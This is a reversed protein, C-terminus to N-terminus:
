QVDILDQKKKHYEQNLVDMADILGEYQYHGTLLLLAIKEFGTRMMSKLRNFSSEIWVRDKEIEGSRKTEQYREMQIKIEGLMICSMSYIEKYIFKEPDLTQESEYIRRFIHIAKTDIPDLSPYFPLTFVSQRTIAAQILVAKVPEIATTSGVAVNLL